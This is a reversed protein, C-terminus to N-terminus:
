MEQGTAVKHVEFHVHEHQLKCLYEKGFCTCRQSHVHLTSTYALLHCYLTIVTYVDSALQVQPIQLDQLQQSHVRLLVDLQYHTNTYVLGFWM